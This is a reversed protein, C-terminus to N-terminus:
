IQACERQSLPANRKKQQNLIICLVLVVIGVALIVLIAVSSVSDMYRSLVTIVSTQM